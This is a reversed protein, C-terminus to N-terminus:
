HAAHRTLRRTVRFGRAVAPVAEPLNVETRQPLIPDDHILSVGPHGAFALGHRDHYVEVAATLMTGVVQARLATLEQGIGVVTKFLARKLLALRGAGLARHVAELRGHSFVDPGHHAIGPGAHKAAVRDQGYTM